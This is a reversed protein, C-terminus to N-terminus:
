NLNMVGAHAAGVQMDPLPVAPGSASELRGDDHAVLKRALDGLQAPIGLRGAEKGNAVQHGGLSVDDAPVAELAAKTIGM